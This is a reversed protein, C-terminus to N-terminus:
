LVGSNTTGSRRRRMDRICRLLRSKESTGQFEAPTIANKGFTEEGLLNPFHIPV